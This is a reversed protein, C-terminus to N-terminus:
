GIIWHRLHVISDLTRKAEGVDHSFGIKFKFMVEIVEGDHFDLNNKQHFTMIIFLRPDGCLRTNSCQTMSSIYILFGDRLVEYELDFPKLGTLRHIKDEM